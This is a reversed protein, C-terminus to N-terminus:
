WPIVRNIKQKCLEKDNLLESEWLRLVTFGEFILNNNVKIDRKKNKIQAPSKPTSFKLPNSHWYDGDAFIVCNPPVFADAQCISGIAIHKYYKVSLENLISFLITEIKTNKKPYVRHLRAKRLKEIVEESYVGTKNKNWPSFGKKFQTKQIKSKIEPKNMATKTNQSVKRKYEESMKQGKNWPIPMVGTKNKNWPMVGKKFQTKPSRRKGVHWSGIHHSPINFKKKYWFLTEYPMGLSKAIEPLSKKNDIYEKILFQKSINWKNIKRTNM